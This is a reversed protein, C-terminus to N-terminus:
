ACGSADQQLTTIGIVALLNLPQLTIALSILPFRSTGFVLKSPQRM